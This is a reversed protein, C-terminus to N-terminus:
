NQNHQNITKQIYFFTKDITEYQGNPTPGLSPSSVVYGDVDLLTYLPFTKVAYNKWITSSESMGYVDWPIGEIASQAAGSLETNIKYVTVFQINEKYREYIEKLLEIETRNRDSELDIFQIYLYKGKYDRLTKTPKGEEIFVTSPAIGGEALATIRDIINKAIPRHHKFMAGNSLSDLMTLINTKPFRDSSYSESLIKIMVLERIQINSLTYESGLARMVMTPSSNLIGQYVSENAENSLRPILKQYFDGVYAMYPENNYQLATNRIYFDYKEYRNREAAHQINDLGAITFRIYMKFFTSTDSKYAKEVRIKFSELGTAFQVPDLSRLHYNNGIFHDVWRQFGLVKYNIDTSDLEYFAVEVENGSPKFPTYKDKEPLFLVYEANPQILLFGKNNKSKIIIKQTIANSFTMSFTSDAEVKTSAIKNETMSVYDEIAYAEITNGVYSPALGRITVTQSLVTGCLFLFSLLSLIKNM